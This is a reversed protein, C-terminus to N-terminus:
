NKTFSALKLKISNNKLFHWAEGACINMKEPTYEEKTHWSNKIAAWTSWQEETLFDFTFDFLEPKKSLADNQVVFNGMRKSYRKWSVTNFNDDLYIWFRNNYLRKLCREQKKIFTRYKALEDKTRNGFIWLVSYGNSNYDHTRELIEYESINSCQVEIAVKYEPVTADNIREGIRNELIASPFLHKILAKMELHRETEPETEYPCDTFHRFHKIKKMADVFMMEGKCNPCVFKEKISQIYPLDSESISTLRRGEKTSAILPM